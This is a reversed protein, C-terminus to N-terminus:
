YNGERLRKRVDDLDTGRDAIEGYAKERKREIRDARAEYDGEADRYGQRYILLGGGLTAVGLALRWGGVVYAAFVALGYLVLWWYEFLWSALWMM